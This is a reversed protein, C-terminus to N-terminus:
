GCSKKSPCMPKSPDSDRAIQAVRIENRGLNNVTGGKMLENGKPVAQLRVSTNGKQRHIDHKFIDDNRTRIENM